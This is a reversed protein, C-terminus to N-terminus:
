LLEALGDRLSVSPHWGPLRSYGEVPKMVERERYPFAGFNVNLKRQSIIEIMSVIEKLSFDVDDYIGFFNNTSPGQTDIWKYASIFCQIVDKIHVLNVRQEGPSLKLEAGTKLSRVLLQIIKARPDNPGYTDFLRLTVVRLGLSQSYYLLINEFSEKTAAYLNVPEYEPSKYSQWSTGTNIFNRCGHKVCAEALQTGLQINSQILAPIQSPEHKVLFLSALHFVAVPKNLSFWDDISAYDGDIELLKIEPLHADLLHLSAGKRVLVGVSFDELM